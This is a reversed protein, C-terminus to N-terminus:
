IGRRSQKRTGTRIPEYTRRRRRRTTPGGPREGQVPPTPRRDHFCIGCLEIEYGFKEALDEAVQAVRDKNVIPGVWYGDKPASERPRHQWNTTPAHITILTRPKHCVKIHYGVRIEEETTM